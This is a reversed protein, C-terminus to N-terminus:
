KVRSTDIWNEINEEYTQVSTSTNHLYFITVNIECSVCSSHTTQLTKLFLEVPLFGRGFEEERGIDGREEGQLAAETVSSPSSSAEDIRLPMTLGETEKLEICVLSLM